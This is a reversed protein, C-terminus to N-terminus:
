RSKYSLQCSFDRKRLFGEIETSEPTFRLQVTEELDHTFTQTRREEWRRIERSFM